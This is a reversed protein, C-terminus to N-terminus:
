IHTIVFTTTLSIGAVFSELQDVAHKVLIFLLRLINRRQFPLGKNLVAMQITIQKKSLTQALLELRGEALDFDAWAGGIELALDHFNATSLTLNYPTHQLIINSDVARMARFDGIVGIRTM